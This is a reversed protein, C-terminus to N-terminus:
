TIHGAYQRRKCTPDAHHDLGSLKKKKSWLNTSRDFYSKKGQTFYGLYPPYIEAFRPSEGM